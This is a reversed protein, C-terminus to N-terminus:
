TTPHLVKAQLKTCHFIYLMCQLTSPYHSQDVMDAVNGYQKKYFTVTIVNIYYFLMPKAWVPTWQLSKYNHFKAPFSGTLLFSRHTRRLNKQRGSFYERISMIWNLQTSKVKLSWTPLRDRSTARTKKHWTPLCIQVMLCKFQFTSLILLCVRKIARQGPSGQHALVLFTFSIQIKSFCSVTLPLPMLQAM